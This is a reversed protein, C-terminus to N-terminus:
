LNQMKSILDELNSDKVTEQNITETEVGNSDEVLEIDWESKLSDDDVLKTKSLKIAKIKTERDKVFSKGSQKKENQLNQCKRDLCEPNPLFISNNFYENKANYQLYYSVSEFELLLKLTTHAM